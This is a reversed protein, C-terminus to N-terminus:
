ARYRSALEPSQASFAILDASFVNQLLEGQEVGPATVSEGLEIGRLSATVVDAASMRPVASLDMGQREHFETAVVGPLLVQVDVGSPSLEAHLTQSLALSYALTSAYVARRLGVQESTAPGSFAIMGAVNVIQGTGREVMGPALARTLLTPALVKVGVLEAAQEQPLEIFAGYHAVGANNVLLTVPQDGVATIVDQIGQQTSLDAVVTRVRVHPFETALEDLREQRRGVAVLDTGQAALRRAYERGIGSSAGTVVALGSM